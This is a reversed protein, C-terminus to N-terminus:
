AGLQGGIRATVPRNNAYTYVGIGDIAVIVGAMIVVILWVWGGEEM